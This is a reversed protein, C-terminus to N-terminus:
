SDAQSALSEAQALVQKPSGGGLRWLGILGLIVTVLLSIVQAVTIYALAQSRTFGFVPLITVAV